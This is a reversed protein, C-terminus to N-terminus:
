SIEHQKKKRSEAGEVLHRHSVRERAKDEVDLHAGFSMNISTLSISSPMDYKNIVLNNISTPLHLDSAAKIV